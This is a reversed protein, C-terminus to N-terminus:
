DISVFKTVTKGRKQNNKYFSPYEGHSLDWNLFSAVTDGANGTDNYSSFKSNDTIEANIRIFNDNLKDVLKVDLGYSDKYVRVCDELELMMKGWEINNFQNIIRMPIKNNDFEVVVPSVVVTIM